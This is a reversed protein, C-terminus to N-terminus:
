CPSIQQRARVKADESQCAARRSPCDSSGAERRYFNCSQREDVTRVHQVGRRVSAADPRQLHRLTQKNKPPTTFDVGGMKKVDGSAASSSRTSFFRSPCALRRFVDRRLQCVTDAPISYRANTGKSALLERPSTNIPFNASKLRCNCLLGWGHRSM